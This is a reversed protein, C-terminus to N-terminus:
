GSTSAIMNSYVREADRRVPAPPLDRHSPAEASCSAAQKNKATSRNAAAATSSSASSASASAM